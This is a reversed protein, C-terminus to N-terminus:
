RRRVRARDGGRRGGGCSLPRGAHPHLDSSCRHAASEALFADGRGVARQGVPGLDRQQSRRARRALARRQRPRGGADHGRGHVPFHSRRGAVGRRLRRRPAGSAREVAAARHHGRRRRRPFSRRRRAVRRRVPGSENRQLARHWRPRARRHRSGDPAGARHAEAREGGIRGGRRAHRLACPGRARQVRPLVRRRAMRREALQQEGDGCADARSGHSHRRQHRAARLSRRGAVGRSVTRRGIGTRRADRRGDARPDASSRRRRRDIRDARDREPVGGGRPLELGRGRRAGLFLRGRTTRTDCQAAQQRRPRADDGRQLPRPARQRREDGDGRPPCAPRGRDARRFRWRHDDHPRVRSVGARAPVRHPIQEGDLRGPRFTGRKRYATRPSRRGHRGRADARRIGVARRGRPLRDVRRSIRRRQHRHARRLPHLGAGGRIGARQHAGRISARVAGGGRPDGFGVASRRHLEEHGM